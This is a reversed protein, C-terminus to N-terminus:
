SLSELFNNTPVSTGTGAEWGPAIKNMYTRFM